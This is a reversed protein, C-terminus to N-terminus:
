NFMLFKIEVMAFQLSLNNWLALLLQYNPNLRLENLFNATDSLKKEVRENKGQHRRPRCQEMM